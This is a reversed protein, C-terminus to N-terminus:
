QRTSNERQLHVLLLRKSKDLWASLEENTLGHAEAIQEVTKGNLYAELVDLSEPDLKELASELKEWVKVAVEEVTSDKVLELVEERFAPVSKPM